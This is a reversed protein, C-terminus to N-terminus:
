DHIDKYHRLCYFAEVCGLFANADKGSVRFEFTKYSTSSQRWYLKISDDESHNWTNESDGINEKTERKPIAIYVKDDSELLRMMEGQDCPSKLEVRLDNEEMGEMIFDHINIGIEDQFKTDDWDPVLTDDLELIFFLALSNLIAENADASELLFVLNFITILMGMGGNIAMNVCLLIRHKLDTDGVRFFVHNFGYANNMQGYAEKAFFVTTTVSVILVLIDDTLTSKNLNLNYYTLSVFLLIQVVFAFITSAILVRNDPDLFACEYINFNHGRLDQMLKHVEVMRPINKPCDQSHPIFKDQLLEQRGNALYFLTPVLLRDDESDLKMMAKLVEVHNIIDTSLFDYFLTYRGM